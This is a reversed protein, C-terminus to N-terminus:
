ILDTLKSGDSFLLNKMYETGKFDSLNELMENINRARRETWAEYSSIREDYELMELTYNETLSKKISDIVGERTKKNLLSIAWKIRGEKPGYKSVISAGYTLLGNNTKLMQAVNFNQRFYELANLDENHRSVLKEKQAKVIGIISGNGYSVYIFNEGPTLPFVIDYEGFQFRIDTKSCITKANRFFSNQKFIMEWCGSEPHIIDAYENKLVDYKKFVSAEKDKLLLIAKEFRERRQEEYYIMEEITNMM